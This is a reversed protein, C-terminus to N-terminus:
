QTSPPKNTFEVHIVVTKGLIDQPPTIEGLQMITRISNGINADLFLKIKNTNPDVNLTIDATVHYYGQDDQSASPTATEYGLSKGNADYMNAEIKFNSPVNMIQRFLWELDEATIQHTGSAAINSSM